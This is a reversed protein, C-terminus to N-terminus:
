DLRQMEDVTDRHRQGNVALCFGCSDCQVAYIGPPNPNGFVMHSGAFNELSGVGCIPCRTFAEEIAPYGGLILRKVRRAGSAADKATGWRDSPNHRITKAFVHHLHWTDPNDPFLKNMSKSTFASKERAFARQGSAMSWLIKGASYLDARADVTDAAGPECEPAMYNITGVGEDVLTITEDGEIQCVGFDIVRITRDPALLVNSPSLDRHVVRPDSEECASIAETLQIFLDISSMPDGLFPNAGSTLISHLTRAGEVLEMVYYHFEDDPASSDVVPIVYPHRLSRIAAVERTFREYAQRPRDQALAKLAYTGPHKGLSDTVELVQAQGGEGLTKGTPKWRLDKPIRM